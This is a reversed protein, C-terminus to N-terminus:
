SNFNALIKEKIDRLSVSLGLYNDNLMYGPKLTIEKHLKQMNAVLYISKIGLTCAPIVDKEFNDGIYLIGEPISNTQTIFVEFIEPNPKFIGVDESTIMCDILHDLKYIMLVRSISKTCNSIVGIRYSKKLFTILEYSGPRVQLPFEIKNINQLEERIKNSFKTPFQDRLAHILHETFRNKIIDWGKTLDLISDITNNWIEFYLNKSLIIGNNLLKFFLEEFGSNNRLLLTGGLDFVVWKLNKKKM